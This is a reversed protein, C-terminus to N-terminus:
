LNHEHNVEKMSDEYMKRITRDQLESYKFVMVWLLAINVIPIFYGFIDSLITRINGAWSRKHLKVVPYRANFKHQSDVGALMLMVFLIVSVILHFYLLGM